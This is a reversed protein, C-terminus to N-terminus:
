TVCKAQVGAEFASLNREIGRAWRTRIIQSMEQPSFLDGLRTGGCAAGLTYVNAPLPTGEIRPLDNPDLYFLRAGSGQVTALVSQLSPYHAKGLMVATPEWVHGYLLFDGGHQLYRVAKLAESREMAIVLDAGRERIHPGVSERGLRLEVKVFGGRQAMGTTPFFNAPYGKKVAARMILEGLTVVGQGGVGVLYIDYNLNM